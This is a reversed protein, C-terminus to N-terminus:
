PTPEDAKGILAKYRLANGIALNMVIMGFLDEAERALGYAQPPPIVTGM